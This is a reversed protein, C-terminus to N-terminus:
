NKENDNNCRDCLVSCDCIDCDATFEVMEGGDFVSLKCTEKGLGDFSNNHLNYEILKDSLVFNDPVWGTLSNHNLSLLELRGNGVSM